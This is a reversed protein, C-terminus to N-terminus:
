RFFWDITIFNQKLAESLGISSYLAYLIDYQFRSKVLVPAKISLILFWPNILIILWNDWCGVIDSCWFVYWSSSKEETLRSSKTSLNTDVDDSEM